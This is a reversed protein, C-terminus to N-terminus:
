FLHGDNGPMGETTNDGCNRILVKHPTHKKNRQPPNCLFACQSTEISRFVCVWHPLLLSLSLPHATQHITAVNWRHLTQGCQNRNVEERCIQAHKHTDRRWHFAQVRKHSVVRCPFPRIIIYIFGGVNAFAGAPISTYGRPLAYLVVVSGMPIPTQTHKM